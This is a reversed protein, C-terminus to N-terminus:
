CVLHQPLVPMAGHCSCVYASVAVATEHAQRVDKGKILSAVFAATFSDGAGVTDAVVVRPTPIYSRFDRGFVYSGNVGCTLILLKLEYRDILAACASEDGGDPLGLMPRVINLEEDNIKLVNCRSVSDEVLAKSFYHQRLNIDFVSLLDGRDRPMSDLFRGITEYSVPSRRALSGFCVVRTNRALSQLESTFPINDWAVNEKIDYQPVGAGDLSVAVSGTPYSVRAVSRGIRGADLIHLISDGPEDSGVASVVTGRLGFQSIHYAFNAPAGGPKRGEPLMDWLLEGIGVIMDSEKM